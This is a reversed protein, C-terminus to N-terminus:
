IYDMSRSVMEEYRQPEYSSIEVWALWLAICRNYCVSVVSYINNGVNGGMCKGVASM